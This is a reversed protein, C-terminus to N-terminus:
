VGRTEITRPVMPQPQRIQSVDLKLMQPPAKPPLPSATTTPGKFIDPLAPLTPATTAMAPLPLNPGVPLMGAVKKLYTSVKPLMTFKAEIQAPVGAQATLVAGLTTSM